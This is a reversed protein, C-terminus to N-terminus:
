VSELKLDEFRAFSDVFKLRLDGIPGNRHKRVLVEAIGKEETDHNLVEERHVFLVIDADQEIAGSDRLDSLQPRRGEKVCDRSLQSLVVVPVELEKALLKLRRSADAVGQQRTEADPMQILQLYDVILLDLGKTAKLHRAKARAQEITLISSDDLWFPLQEIRQATEAFMTWQQKSLTGTKLAHIDISALMGCLRLGIPIRSMELSFLGVRYGKKLAADVIGLALSTKGMSPRAAIIILDSKQLGGLLKDLAPFGTPIGVLEGKRQSADNVYKVTELALAAASCWTRQERGIALHFLEREADCLLEDAADREYARRSIDATLKILRRRIAHDRVIRAHHSINSSSAITNTFEALTGRGGIHELGGNRELMDGLTLLDLVDEGGALEAMAEFIHRHRSDYFDTPRLLEQERSLATPDILVAGLVAQEAHLDHPQLKPTDNLPM